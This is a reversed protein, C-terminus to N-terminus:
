EMWLMRMLRWNPKQGPNEVSVARKDITTKKMPDWFVLRYQRKQGWLANSETRWLERSSEKDESSRRGRSKDLSLLHRCPQVYCITMFLEREKLDWTVETTGLPDIRPGRKNM